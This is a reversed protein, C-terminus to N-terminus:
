VSCPVASDHKLIDEHVDWHSIPSKLVVQLKRWFVVIRSMRLFNKLLEIYLTAGHEHAHSAGQIQLDAAQLILGVASLALLFLLLVNQWVTMFKNLGLLFLTLGVDICLLVVFVFDLTLLMHYFCPFYADIHLVRGCIEGIVTCAQGGTDVCYMLVFYNTLYQFVHQLQLETVSVVSAASHGHGAHSTTSFAVSAGDGDGSSVFPDNLQRNRNSNDSSISM